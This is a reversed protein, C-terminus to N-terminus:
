ASYMQQVRGYADTRYLAYEANNGDLLADNDAASPSTSWEVM